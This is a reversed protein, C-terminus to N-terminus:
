TAGNQVTIVKGENADYYYLVGYKKMFRRGKADPEHTDTSVRYTFTENKDFFRVEVFGTDDARVTRKKYYDISIIKRVSEFLVLKGIIIEPEHVHLNADSLFVRICSEADHVNYCRIRKPYRGLYRGKTETARESAGLYYGKRNIALYLM